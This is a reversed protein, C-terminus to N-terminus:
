LSRRRALETIIMAGAFVLSVTAPTLYEHLADGIGPLNMYDAINALGAVLFGVVMSFRAWLITASGETAIRARHIRSGSTVLYNSIFTYIMWGAISFCIITFLLHVYFM